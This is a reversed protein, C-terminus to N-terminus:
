AVQYVASVLVAAALYPLLRKVTESKLVLLSLGIWVALFVTGLKVTATEVPMNLLAEVPVDLVGGMGLLHLLLALPYFPIFLMTWFVSFPHWLSFVGFLTLAFPLMMLYVWAHLGIFTFVKGRGEFRQLFLFIYFVGAASLWFGVSFLLRPWLAILLAAAILLSAFSRVRIGRDYFWFGILMMAFARLVSPPMQLFSVYGAMVAASVMFLDRKGHRSQVWGYPYRLVWFLLLSLLGIHFGSIALLHSIGLAGIRERIAPPLPTATFLAAFLAGTQPDNHQTEIRRAWRYNATLARDMREIYGHAFFGKLYAIFGIAETRIRVTVGYGSLDRLSPDASMYFTAGENSRLKLVFYNRDAKRKEYQQLVTARIVADDFRVLHRYDSYELALSVLFLLLVGTSFLLTEKKSRFLPVSEIKM